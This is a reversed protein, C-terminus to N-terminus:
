GFVSPGVSVRRLYPNNCHEMYNRSVMCHSYTDTVPPHRPYRHIYLLHTSSYSVCEIERRLGGSLLM